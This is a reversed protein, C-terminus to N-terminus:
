LADVITGDLIESDILYQYFLIDVPLSALLTAYSDRVNVKYSKFTNEVWEASVINGYAFIIIRDVSFTDLNTIKVYEYDNGNQDQPHVHKPETLQIVNM